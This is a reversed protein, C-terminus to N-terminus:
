FVLAARAAPLAPVKQATAGVVQLREAGHGFLFRGTVQAGDFLGAKTQLAASLLLCRTNEVSVPM